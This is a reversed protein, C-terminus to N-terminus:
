QKGSQSGSGTIQLSSCFEALAQRLEATYGAPTVHLSCRYFTQRDRLTLTHYLMPAWSGGKGPGYNYHVKGISASEVTDLNAVKLRQPALIRESSESEDYGVQIEHLLSEMSTPAQEATLQALSMEGDVLCSNSDSSEPDCLTLGLYPADTSVPAVVWGAPIEVTVPAGELKVRSGAVASAPMGLVLLIPM